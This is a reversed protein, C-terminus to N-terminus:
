CNYIPVAAYCFQCFLAPLVSIFTSIPFHTSLFNVAKQYAESTGLMLQYKGSTSYLMLSRTLRKTWLLCRETIKIYYSIDIIPKSGRSVWFLIRCLSLQKNREYIQFLSCRVCDQANQKVYYCSRPIILIIESFIKELCTVIVSTYQTFKM